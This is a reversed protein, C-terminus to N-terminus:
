HKPPPPKNGKPGDPRNPREGKPRQERPPRQGGVRRLADKIIRSFKEKQETNCLKQVETFHEFTLLEKRKENDGILTAISDTNITGLSADSLGLFLEDKLERTEDIIGRTKKRHERALARFQKKQADDFGLEKALFAVPPKREETQQVQEGSGLYNYLFFANVVILFILLIYLPFKKKM